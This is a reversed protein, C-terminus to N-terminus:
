STQHSPAGRWAISVPHWGLSKYGTRTGPAKRYLHVRWHGSGHRFEGFVDRQHSCHYRLPHGHIARVSGPDLLCHLRPSVALGWPQSVHRFRGGPVYDTVALQVVRRRWPKPQCIVVAASATVWCPDLVAAASSPATCRYAAGIMFSGIQCHAGRWRHIVRYGPKLQGGASVPSVTRVATAPASTAASLPVLAMTVAPLAIVVVRRIAQSTM